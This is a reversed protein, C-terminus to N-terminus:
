QVSRVGNRFTSMEREIEEAGQVYGVGMFVPSGGGGGRALFGGRHDKVGVGTLTGSELEDASEWLHDGARQLEEDLTRRRRSHASTSVPGPDSEQSSTSSPKIRSHSSSNKM